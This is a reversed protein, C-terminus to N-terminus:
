EEESVYQTMSEVTELDLLREGIDDEKIFGVKKKSCTSLSVNSFVEGQITKVTIQTGELLIEGDKVVFCKRFEM